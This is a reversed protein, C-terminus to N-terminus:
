ISFRAHGASQNDVEPARADAGIAHHGDTGGYDDDECNQEQLPLQSLGAGPKAHRHHTQAHEGSCVSPLLCFAHTFEVLGARADPTQTDRCRPTQKDNGTFTGGRACRYV